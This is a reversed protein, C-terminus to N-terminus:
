IALVQVLELMDSSLKYEKNNIAEELPTTVVENGRVGVTM